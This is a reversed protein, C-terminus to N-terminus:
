AFLAQGVHEGAGVGPPVAFLASGTFKLYEVLADAKSMALQLPVFHTGPDRVYAIFFLGADLGGLANSGDVFNYGRRLMRVGGHQDPHVVRVHADVPIVPQDNSGPMDFDPETHESGGSLPAGTDKTRGVFMEQDGLPQRDWVEITMNIRRAVLYSGGALWAGAADDDAGVWVHEDLAASEEAKVNATGDKFGFLNRPTSQSTSTTSTRGFGLQSWRVSVTGFGIRALNRIAHVAVQPDDACAQICLDGGSRAPDLVDGPFHPLERLAAPQRDAIGFRDKGSADRFLSPGFGFTVTLGSAPLDLAEGTDDPPLRVDGGVAGSGAPEGTTMQEAALTWKQLLDVLEDRSDTLVDFAAFHLRDQAPTTIGAQHAGRFAYTAARGGAAPAPDVTGAHATTRGAAFAGAAGAVAAGGGLLGRRSLRGGTRPAPQESM